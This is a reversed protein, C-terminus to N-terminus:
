RRLRRRGRAACRATSRGPPPAQQWLTRKTLCSCPLASAAPPNPLAALVLPPPSPPSRAAQFQPSGVPQAIRPFCPQRFRLSRGIPLIILRGRAQGNTMYGSFSEFSAFLLGLVGLANGAPATRAVRIPRWTRHSPGLLRREHVRPAAKNPRILSSAAHACGACCVQCSPVHMAALAARQGGGAAGAGRGMKGSTNLLQNLRLRQSSEVGALAVPASLAQVAGRSGGLLAGATIAARSPPPYQKGSM